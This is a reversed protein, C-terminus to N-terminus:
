EDDDKAIYEVLGLAEKDAQSLKALAIQRANFHERSRSSEFHRLPRVEAGEITRAIIHAVAADTYYGDDSLFVAPCGDRCECGVFIGYIEGAHRILPLCTVTVMERLEREIAFKVRSAISMNGNAPETFFQKEIQVIM